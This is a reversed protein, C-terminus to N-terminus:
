ASGYKRIMTDRRQLAERAMEQKGADAYLRIVLAWANTIHFPKAQLFAKGSDTETDVKVLNHQAIAEELLAALEADHKKGRGEPVVELLIGPLIPAKDSDKATFTERAAALAETIKGQHAACRAYQLSDNVRRDEDIPQKRADDLIEMARAWDDAQRYADAYQWANAPTIDAKDVGKLMEQARAAVMKNVETPMIQGKLARDQLKERYDLLNRRMIDPHAVIEDPANPDPLQGTKCGALMAAVALSAFIWKIARM